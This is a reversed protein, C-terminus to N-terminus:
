RSEIRSWVRIGDFNATERYNSLLVTVATPCHQEFDSLADESSMLPSKDVFVFVPPPRDRM